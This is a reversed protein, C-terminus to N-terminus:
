EAETIGLPVNVWEGKDNKYEARIYTKSPVPKYANMIIDVGEIFRADGSERAHKYLTVIKSPKLNGKRDRAMLSRCITVAREANPNDLALSDLYENVKSIGDEATDDYIRISAVYEEEGSGTKYEMYCLNGADDFQYTMQASAEDYELGAVSWTKLFRVMKDSVVGIGEPFSITKNSREFFLMNLDEAICDLNWGARNPSLTLLEMGIVESGGVGPDQLAPGYGIGQYRVSAYKPGSSASWEEQPADLDTHQLISLFDEGNVWYETQSYPGNVSLWHISERSKLEELAAYCREVAANQDATNSESAFIEFEAYGM